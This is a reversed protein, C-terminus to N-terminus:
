LPLEALNSPLMLFASIPQTDQFYNYQNNIVISQKDKYASIPQTDQLTTINITIIVISQKDKYIPKQRGNEHIIFCHSENRKTM